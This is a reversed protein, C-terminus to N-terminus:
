RAPRVEPMDEMQSKSFQQKAIVLMCQGLADRTQGVKEDKLKTKAAFDLAKRYNTIAEEWRKGEAAENGLMVAEEFSTADGGGDGAIKRLLQM